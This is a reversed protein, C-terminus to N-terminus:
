NNIRERYWDVITAMRRKFSGPVNVKWKLVQKIEPENKIQALTYILVKDGVVDLFIDVRQEGADLAKVLGMVRLSDINEMRFWLNDSTTRTILKYYNSSFTSDNQFYVHETFSPLVEMVPDNIKKKKDDVFYSKKILPYMKGRNASYYELGAQESFALFNNLLYVMLKDESISPKDLVFLMEVCLEPDYTSLDSLLEDDFDLSNPILLLGDKYNSDTRSAYKGEDVYGKDRETLGPILFEWESAVANFVVNLLIFVTFVKKM